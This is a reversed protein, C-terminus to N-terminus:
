LKDGWRHRDALAMKQGCQLERCGRGVMVPLGSVKVGAVVTDMRRGAGGDRVKWGLLREWSLKLFCIGAKNVM